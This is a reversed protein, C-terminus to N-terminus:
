CRFGIGVNYLVTNTLDRAQVIQNTAGVYRFKTLGAGNSVTQLRDLADYTYTSINASTIPDKAQTLRGLTDWVLTQGVQGTLRGDLDNTYTNGASDSTPRNASNYTMTVTSGGGVQKTFRNTVSDWTYAQATVPTGSYGTM